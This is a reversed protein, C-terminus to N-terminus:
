RIMVEQYLKYINNYMKVMDFRSVAEPVYSESLHKTNTIIEEKIAQALASANAMDVMKAPTGDLVERLGLCNTGILPVGCVLTEMAVLPCAEWLSPMVVVDVGNIAASIDPTFPMFRFYDSLGKRMIVETEERIYGGGGFALVVPIKNLGGHRHLIEMADVLYAFGKPSMFRGFFGIFYSDEGLDLEESFDRRDSKTFRKVDIGNPIIVCKSMSKKLKPFHELLNNHADASVSHIKSASFLTANAIMKSIIGKKGVFQKNNTIDHLTIVHPLSKVYAPFAASIAATFGQSHVIDYNNSLILKAIKIFFKTQNPKKETGCYILDIDNLDKLLVKMEDLEPAIITFQWNNVDFNRLLYNLFNRIGGVPWRVVILIKKKNVRKDTSM